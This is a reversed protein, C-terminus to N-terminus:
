HVSPSSTPVPEAGRGTLAFVGNQVMSQNVGGGGGVGGEPASRGLVEQM